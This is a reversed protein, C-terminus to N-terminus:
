PRELIDAGPLQDLLARPLRNGDHMLILHEWASADSAARTEAASSGENRRGGAYSTSPLGGIASVSSCRVSASLIRAFSSSRLQM